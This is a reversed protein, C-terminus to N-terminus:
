SRDCSTRACTRWAWGSTRCSIPTRRRSCGARRLEGRRRREGAGAAGNAIRRQRDRATPDVLAIETGERATGLDGRPERHAAGGQRRAARLARRDERVRLEQREQRLGGPAARPHADPMDKGDLTVRVSGGAKLRPDPNDFQLTVDFLRTVSASEFFNARNALGSLQGVRAKFKEGPLADVEVVASQGDVLNPRDSEDIKARVEMRGSEIVDAVPRGPWIQDGARYEPLVMGWFIMGGSADRNEKLSVVGDFPASIVLSDIVQQARQM